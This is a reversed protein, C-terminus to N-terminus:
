KKYEVTNRVNAKKNTFNNKFIFGKIGLIARLRIHNSGSQTGITVNNSKGGCVVM